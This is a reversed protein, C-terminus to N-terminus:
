DPEDRVLEIPNLDASQALWSLLQLVHQEDNSKIYKQCLKNTHNSDNDQMLVFEQAVLWMGCPITHHQLISHYSIQILKGKVQHLDGVKCYTFAGM